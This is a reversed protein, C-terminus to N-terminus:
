SPRSRTTSGGSPVAKARLVLLQDLVAEPHPIARFRKAGRTTVLVTDGFTEPTGYPYEVRGEQIAALLTETRTMALLGREQVIRSPTIFARARLMQLTILALNLSMGM